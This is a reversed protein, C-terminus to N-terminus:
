TISQGKKGTLVPVSVDWTSNVNKGLHVNQAGPKIILRLSQKGGKTQKLHFRAKCRCRPRGMNRCCDLSCPFSGTGTNKTTCSGDQSISWKKVGANHGVGGQVDECPHKPPHCPKKSQQLSSELVTNKKRPTERHWWKAGSPSM